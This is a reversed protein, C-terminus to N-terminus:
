SGWRAQYSGFGSAGSLFPSCAIQSLTSYRWLVLDIVSVRDGIQKSILECLKQPDEFGLATSIRLLHRDPKAFDFGLNKALHWCTAPGIFPIRTLWEPGQTRIASCVEAIGQDRLLECATLVATLKARHAFHAHASEVCRVPDAVIKDPCFDYFCQSVQQFKSEVVASRMGSSLVVWATERLFDRETVFEPRQFEQWDVEDGFGAACVVRKADLYARALNRHFSEPHV